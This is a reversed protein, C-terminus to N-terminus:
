PEDGLWIRTRTITCDLAAERDLFAQEVLFKLFLDPRLNERSGAKVHLLFQDSDEKEISLILPRINIPLLGSKTKKLVLWPIQEQMDSALLLMLANELGDAKIRYDAASVLSMLSQGADDIRNGSLVSIGRPLKSNLTNIWTSVDAQLVDQKEELRVDLLDNETAIGVGMPLAFSLRPRPNYGSSYAVPINARRVAREFTRMLDLHALWIAPEFRCFSLRLSLSM